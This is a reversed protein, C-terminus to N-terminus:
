NAFFQELQEFVLEKIKQNNVAGKEDVGPIFIGEHYQAEITKGFFKLTKEACSFTDKLNTAACLIPYLRRKQALQPDTIVKQHLINQAAWFCQMRDIMSKALGGLSQFFIPAAIFLKEAALIKPYISKLEDNVHCVGDKNCAGCALCPRFNYNRLYIIDVLYGKKQAIDGTWQALCDSNGNKRPSCALILANPTKM